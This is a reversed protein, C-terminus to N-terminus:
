RGKTGKAVRIAARWVDLVAQKQDSKLPKLDRIVEQLIARDQEQLEATAQLPVGPYRRGPDDTLDSISVRFLKAMRRIVEMGPVKSRVYLYHNLTGLSLGLHEALGENTIGHKERYASALEKFRTRHPWKDM